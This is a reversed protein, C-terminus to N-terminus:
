YLALFLLILACVLFVAFFTSWKGSGCVVARILIRGGTWALLLVVAFSLTEKALIMVCPFALLIEFLAILREEKKTYEPTPLIEDGQLTSGHHAQAPSLLDLKCHKCKIAVALIEEGCHPCRKMEEHMADMQALATLEQSLRDAADQSEHEIKTLREILEAGSHCEGVLSQHKATAITVAQNEAVKQLPQGCQTCFRLTGAYVENCTTCSLCAGNLASEFSVAIQKAVNTNNRAAEIRDRLSAKIGELAEGTVRTNGGCLACFKTASPWAAGCKGCYYALRRRREIEDRAAIEAIAITEKHILGNISTVMVKYFGIFLLLMGVGVTWLLLSLSNPWSDLNIFRYIPAFVFFLFTLPACLLHWSVLYVLCYIPLSVVFLASCICGLLRLYILKDNGRISKQWEFVGGALKPWTVFAWYCNYFPIFLYGIAKRPTTSRFREPLAKWCEYHLQSFLSTAAFVLFLFYLCFSYVVYELNFLTPLLCLITGTCWQAWVPTWNIAIGRADSRIAALFPSVVWEALTLVSIILGLWWWLSGM